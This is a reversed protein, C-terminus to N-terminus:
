ELTIAQIVALAPTVGEYEIVKGSLLVPRISGDKCKHAIEAGLFRGEESLRWSLERVKEPDVADDSGFLRRGTMEDPGYGIASAYCENAYICVWDMTVFAVGQQGEDIFAKFRKLDRETAERETIDRATGLLGYPAGDADRLFGASVEARFLSGDKRRLELDLLTTPIDATEDAIALERAFVESAAEFSGPTMLDGLTMGLAEEVTYGIRYVSPSVYTFNLELDTMWLYDPMNAAIIRLREERERFAEEAKKRDSIDRTVGLIGVPSGEEDRIFRVSSEMWVISGDKRRERLEITRVRYPDAGTGERALEEDLVGKVIRLSEPTLTEELPISLVEGPTYGLVNELAPSAYTTTLNLDWTWVTDSMNEALFRFKRESAEITKRYEERELIGKITEPLLTALRNDKVVYGAAGLQFAEAAVKEDGHGTVMIVPPPDESRRIEGLLQLGDVGPLKFDLTVLDFCSESLTEKASHYDDAVVTEASLEVEIVMALTVAFVPDDEVILIRLQESSVM